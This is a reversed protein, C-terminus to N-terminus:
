CIRNDPLNSIDFYDNPVNSINDFYYACKFIVGIPPCRALEFKNRNRLNECLESNM